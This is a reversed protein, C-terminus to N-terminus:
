EAEAASIKEEAEGEYEDESDVEDATDRVVPPAADIKKSKRKAKPKPAEEVEVEVEVEEAEEALIAKAENKTVSYDYNTRSGIVVGMAVEWNEDEDQSWVFYPVVGFQASRFGFCNAETHAVRCQVLGNEQSKHQVKPQKEMNTPRANMVAVDKNTMGGRIESWLESYPIPPGVIHDKVAKFRIGKTNSEAAKRVQTPTLEKGDGNTLFGPTALDGPMFFNLNGLGDMDVKICAGENPKEEIRFVLNAIESKVKALSMLKRVEDNRGYNGRRSARITHVASTAATSGAAVVYQIGNLTVINKNPDTVMSRIPAHFARQLSHVLLWCSPITRNGEEDKHFWPGYKKEDWDKPAKIGGPKGVSDKWPGHKDEDWNDPEAPLQGKRLVVCGTVAALDQEIPCYRPPIAPLQEGAEAAENYEDVLRENAARSLRGANVNPYKSEPITPLGSTVAGGQYAKRCAGKWDVVVGLFELLKESMKGVADFGIPRHLEMVQDCTISPIRNRSGPLKRKAKAKAKAM